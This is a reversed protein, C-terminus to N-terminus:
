FDLKIKKKRERIQPTNVQLIWHWYHTASDTGTTEVKQFTLLGDGVKTDKNVANTLYRYDHAAITINSSNLTKQTLKSM